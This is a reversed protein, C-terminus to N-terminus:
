GLTEFLLNLGEAMTPHTFPAERVARYDLGGLMAMQLAAIVEGAEPGLLAAGLIKETRADVVAKWVGVSERMTKARPIASLPLKAIRVEHGKARAERETMGIRGLEPTTFVTYALLRDRASRTAGALQSAIVRCDDWAIHTFQPSKAVDGGAWVHEASTRLRDDVVVFGRGDVEVGASELGLNETVPTRGVAVLLEDGVASSGDALTVQIEGREERRVSTAEAAFRVDVGDSRLVEAVVEAIDPDERGLLQAGRQLLTVQAGFIALMQALEVGIYGGGIVVLRRPMRHLDLLTESTWAAAEALGPIPPLTPRSGTDIVVDRGRLLRTGGGRLAVSVTRAAVFRAEGMVFDMGSDRFQTESGAVMADVIGEKHARLLALDARPEGEIAIGLAEARRATRLTRASAILSKSPICAVNICSGGVMKREVMAVRLGARARDMALMKGTKGGGVVLLDVEEPIANM